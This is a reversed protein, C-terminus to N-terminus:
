VVTEGALCKEDIATNGPLDACVMQRVARGQGRDGAWGPWGRGWGADRAVGGSREDANVFGRARELFGASRSVRGM